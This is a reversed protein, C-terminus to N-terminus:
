AQRRKVRGSAITEKEIKGGAEPNKINKKTELLYNRDNPSFSSFM